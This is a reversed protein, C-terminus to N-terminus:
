QLPFSLTFQVFCNVKKSKASCSIPLDNHFHMFVSGMRYDNDFEKIFGM